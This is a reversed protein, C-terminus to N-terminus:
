VKHTPSLCNNCLHSIKKIRDRLSSKLLENCQNTYHGTQKCVNCPYQIFPKKGDTTSAFSRVNHSQQRSKIFPTQPINLRTELNSCEKELFLILAELRPMEDVSITKNWESEINSSVCNIIINIIFLESMKDTKIDLANLSALHSTLLNLLNRLEDASGHKCKPLNVIGFHIINAQSIAKPKDYVRMLNNWAAQYGESSLNIAGIIESAKGSISDLLFTFKVVDSIDSRTHILAVYVNKFALWKLKNGDFKKIHFEPLKIGLKKAESEHSNNNTTSPKSLQENTSHLSIAEQLKRSVSHYEDEFTDSNEQLKVFDGIDLIEALEGVREDHEKYIKLLHTQRQILETLSFEKISFLEVFESCKRLKSVILERKRLLSVSQDNKHRPTNNKSTSM